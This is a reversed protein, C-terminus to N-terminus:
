FSISWSWYGISLTSRKQHQWSQFIFTECFQKTKSTTLNLCQPPRASNSRKEHQWIWFRLVDRLIAENELKCISLYISLCASLCISLYIPLYISVYYALHSLYTSLYISLCISLYSSLYISLYTPLCISITNVATISSIWSNNWISSANQPHPWLRKLYFIKCHAFTARIVLFGLISGEVNPHDKSYRRNSFWKDWQWKKHNKCPCKIFNFSCQRGSGPSGGFLPICFYRGFHSGAPPVKASGGEPPPDTFFQEFVMMPRKAKKISPHHNLGSKLYFIIQFAISKKYLLCEFLVSFCM